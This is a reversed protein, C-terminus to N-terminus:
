SCDVLYGRECLRFLNMTIRGAGQRCFLVSLRGPAPVAISTISEPLNEFTRWSPEDRAGTQYLKASLIKGIVSDLTRVHSTTDNIIFAGLRPVVCDFAPSKLDSTSEFTRGEVATGVM